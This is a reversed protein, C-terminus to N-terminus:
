TIVPVPNYTLYCCSKRTNHYSPTHTQEYIGKNTRRDFGDKNENSM